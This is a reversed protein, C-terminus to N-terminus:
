GGLPLQATDSPESTRTIGGSDTVGSVDTVEGSKSILANRVRAGSDTLQYGTHTRLVFGRVELRSLSIAAKGPAFGTEGCVLDATVPADDVLQLVELEGEDLAVQLRGTDATADEFVLGPALEDTVHKVDSILLAQSTRILENPGAAMPNRISGPVAFVDRNADLAHRATILAGSRLSGEVVITANAIGAIIRNREPFRWGASETGDPYESLVTGCQEIRTKLVKNKMPYVLDAGCGLVAITHGGADLTAEHAISDIGMALGSAIAFGAQVLGAALQRAALRGAATPRRTGVIAVIKSGPPLPAGRVYLRSPCDFTQSLKSPWESSSPTVDRTGFTM